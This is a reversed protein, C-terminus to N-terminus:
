PRGGLAAPLDTLRHLKTGPGAEHRDRRDILFARMGLASSPRVDFEPSDGVYASEGAAVGARALAREFIAADPKEVGELGSIVQVEFFRALDLDVLLRELWAEFNSILGLRYGAAVLADLTPLVDPFAAYNGTDTFTAYLREALEASPEVDLSALVAAYTDFWFRRSDALTTTWRDGVAASASFRDAIVHMREHLAEPTVDHGADRLTRAFLDAFTPQAHLLTEGADFFITTVTM